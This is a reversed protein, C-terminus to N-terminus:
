DATSRKEAYVGDVHNQFDDAYFDRVESWKGAPFQAVFSVRFYRDWAHWQEDSFLGDRHRNFALEWTSLEQLKDWYFRENEEDTLEEGNRQKVYISAM